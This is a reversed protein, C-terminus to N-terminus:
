YGVQYGPQYGLWFEIVLRCHNTGRKDWKELDTQLTGIKGTCLSLPISSFILQGESDGWWSSSTLHLELSCSLSLLQWGFAWILIHELNWFATRMWYIWIACKFYVQFFVGVHYKIHSACACTKERKTVGQNQATSSGKLASCQQRLFLTEPYVWWMINGSQIKKTWKSSKCLWWGNSWLSCIVLECLYQMGQKWNAMM